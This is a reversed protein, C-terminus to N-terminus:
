QLQETHNNGLWLLLKAARRGAIHNWRTQNWYPCSEEIVLVRDWEDGQAAHCTIAYSYDLPMVWFPLDPTSQNPNTNFAKCSFNVTYFDTERSRFSLKPNDYDISIITGQLGNV